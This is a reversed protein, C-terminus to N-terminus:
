EVRMWRLSFVGWHLGKLAGFDHRRLRWSLTNPAWPREVSFRWWHRM